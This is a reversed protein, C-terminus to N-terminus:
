ACRSSVVRRVTRCATRTCAASCSCSCAEGSPARLPLGAGGRQSLLPQAAAGLTQPRAKGPEKREDPADHGLGSSADKLALLHGSEPFHQTQELGVRAHDRPGLGAGGHLEAALDDEVLHLAAEHGTEMHQGVVLTFAVLRQGRHLVVPRNKLVRGPQHGPVPSQMRFPHLARGLTQADGVHHDGPGPGQARRLPGALLLAAPPSAVAPPRPDLATDVAQAAVIPERPAARVAQHAQLAVHAPADEGAVQAM